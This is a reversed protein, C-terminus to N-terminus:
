PLFRNRYEQSYLFGRTIELADKGSNIFDVWSQYGAPEAARRLMGEYMMIVFVNPASQAQYEASETFGIMVEGRSAGRSLQALWGARGAADPARGLVNRYVLTIFEDDSLSGYTLSFESSSAFASAITKLPTASRLSSVWGKLGASDPIRNFFGLYLRVISPVGSQFEPSGFFGQIVAERTMTNTSLRNTWDALGTADSERGLFDRYQQMAFLRSYKTDIRSFIENDKLLPNTGEIAEIIDPIGDGDSDDQPGSTKITLTASLNGADGTVTATASYANTALTTNAPVNIDITCNAGTALSAPFTTPCTGGSRQFPTPVLIASLTAAVPAPNSVTLTQINSATTASARTLMLASPSVLLPYAIAGIKAKLNVTVNGSSTILTMMSDYTGAPKDVGLSPVVNMTCSQGPALSPILSIIAVFPFYTCTGTPIIFNSTPGSSLSVQVSFAPSSEIRSLTVTSSSTNTLTLTQHSFSGQGGQAALGFNLTTASTALPTGPVSASGSIPTASNGTDAAISLSSNYAGANAPASFLVSVTCSSNSPITAPFSTPCSGGSRSFVASSSISISFVNVFGSGLNSVTVEQTSTSNTQKEGFAILNPSIILAQASVFASALLTAVALCGRQMYIRLFQVSKM